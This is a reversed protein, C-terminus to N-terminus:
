KERDKMHGIYFHLLSTLCWVGAWIPQHIALNLIIFPVGIFSLIYNWRSPLM